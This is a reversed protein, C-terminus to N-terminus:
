KFEFRTKEQNWLLAQEDSTLLVGPCHIKARCEGAGIVKKGAVGKSGSLWELGHATGETHFGREGSGDDRIMLIESTIDAPICFLMENARVLGSFRKPPSRSDGVEFRNPARLGTSTTAWEYNTGVARQEEELPFHVGSRYAFSPLIVPAPRYGYRSTKRGLSGPGEVSKRM